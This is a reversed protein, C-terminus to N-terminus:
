AVYLPPAWCSGGGVGAIDDIGVVPGRERGRGGDFQSLVGARDVEGRVTRDVNGSLARTILPLLTIKPLVDVLTVRVALLKSTVPLLAM